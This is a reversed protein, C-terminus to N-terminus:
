RLRWGPWRASVALEAAGGAAVFAIGQAVIVGHRRHRVGARAAFQHALSLAIEPATLNLPRKTFSWAQRVRPDGSQYLCLRRVIGAGRNRCTNPM